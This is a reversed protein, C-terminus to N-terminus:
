VVDLEPFIVTPWFPIPINPYAELTDPPVIVTPSLPTPKYEWPPFTSRVPPVIVVPAESATPTYVTPFPCVTVFLPVVNLKPFEDTAIAFEPVPFVILEVTAFTPNPSLM